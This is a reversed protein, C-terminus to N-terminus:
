WEFEVGSGPFPEPPPLNKSTIALVKYSYGMGEEEPAEKLKAGLAELEAAVQKGRQFEGNGEEDSTKLKPDEVNELTQNSEVSQQQLQNTNDDGGVIRNYGRILVEQQSESSNKLLSDLRHEIGLGALFYAQPM